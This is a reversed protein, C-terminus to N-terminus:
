KQSGFSFIKKSKEWIKQMAERIKDKHYILFPSSFILGTIVMFLFQEPSLSMKDAVSGLAVIFLIGCIAVLGLYLYFFLKFVKEWFIDANIELTYRHTGIVSVNHSFSFAKKM